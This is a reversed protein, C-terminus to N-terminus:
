TGQKNCCYCDILRDFFNNELFKSFILNGFLHIPFNEIKRHYQEKKIWVLDPSLKMAPKNVGDM